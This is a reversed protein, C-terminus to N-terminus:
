LGHRLAYKVMGISSKVKLKNMLNRRHSEVTPLSIFLKTAIENSSFEEVILKLIEIERSTLHSINEPKKDFVEQNDDTALESIVDESYYKKGSMVVNISRELEDKGTTKLVYGNVGARIAERINHADEVMTLLIIKLLPFKNRIQLTLDIGSIEPMQLDSILVEVEENELFYCVDQAKTLKGVVEINPMSSFLLALSDLVIQHDDVLLLRVTKQM